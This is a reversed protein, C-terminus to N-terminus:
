KTDAESWYFFSGYPRAECRRVFRVSELPLCLRGNRGDHCVVYEAGEDNITLQEGKHAIMTPDDYAFGDGARVVWRTGRQVVAVCNRRVGPKAIDPRALCAGSPAQYFGYPCVDQPPAALGGQSFSAALAAALVARKM